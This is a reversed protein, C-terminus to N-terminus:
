YLNGFNMDRHVINGYNLFDIKRGSFHRSQLIICLKLQFAKNITAKGLSKNFVKYFFIMKYYLNKLCRKLYM